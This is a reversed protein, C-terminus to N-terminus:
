ILMINQSPLKDIPEISSFNIQLYMMKEFVVGVQYIGIRLLGAM